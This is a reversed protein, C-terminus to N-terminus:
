EEASGIPPWNEKRMIKESFRIGSKPIMSPRQAKSVFAQRKGALDSYTGCGKRRM